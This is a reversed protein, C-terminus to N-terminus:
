CAQPVLSEGQTRDEGQHGEHALAIVAARLSKPLVVKYETQQLEGRLRGQQMYEALSMLQRDEGTAKEEEEIGM